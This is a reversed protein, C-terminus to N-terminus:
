AVAELATKFADPNGAEFDRYLQFYVQVERIAEDPTNSRLVAM